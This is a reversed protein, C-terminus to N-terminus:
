QLRAFEGFLRRAAECYASYADEPRSFQGLRYQKRHLTITARYKGNERLHVGKFGTKNSSQRKRNWANEAFTANRLNVRRNDLTNRNGHDTFLNRPCGSILRAMSECTRGGCANAISRYAYFSGMEKSWVATWFKGQLLYVSDRDVLAFQGRTLPVYAISPGIPVIIERLINRPM